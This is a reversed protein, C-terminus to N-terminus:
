LKLNLTRSDLTLWEEQEDASAGAEANQENLQM